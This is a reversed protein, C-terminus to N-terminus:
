LKMKKQFTLLLTLCSFMMNTKINSQALLISLSLNLPDEREMEALSSKPTALTDTQATPDRSVVQTQTGIQTTDQKVIDTTILIINLGQQAIHIPAEEVVAQGVTAAAVMEEPVAELVEM